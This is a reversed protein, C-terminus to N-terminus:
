NCANEGGTPRDTLERVLRRWAPESVVQLGCTDCCNHAVPRTRGHPTQLRGWSSQLLGRGCPCLHGVFSESGFLQWDRQAPSDPVQELTRHM